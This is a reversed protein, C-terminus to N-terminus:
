LDVGLETSLEDLAQGIAGLLGDASEGSLARQDRLLRGIRSANQGLLALLRAMEAVQADGTRVQREIFASLQSQHHFLDAIVDGIDRFDDIPWGEPDMHEKSKSGSGPRHAAKSGM